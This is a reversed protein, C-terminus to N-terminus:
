KSLSRQYVLHNANQFALDYNSKLFRFLKAEQETNQLYQKGLILIDIRKERAIQELEAIDQDGYGGFLHKQFYYAQIPRRSYFGIALNYVDYALFKEQEPRSRIYEILPVIYETEKSPYYVSSRAEQIFGFQRSGFSDVSHDMSRTLGYGAIAVLTIGIAAFKLLRPHVSRRILRDALYSFPLVVFPTLYLTYYYNARPFQTFSLTMLICSNLLILYSVTEDEQKLRRHRFIFLGAIASILPALEGVFKRVFLIPHALAYADLFGWPSYRLLNGPVFFTERVFQMESGKLLFYLSVPAFGVACGISLYLITRSTEQMRSSRFGLDNRRRWLGWGLWMVFIGPLGLYLLVNFPSLEAKLLYVLLLFVFLALSGLFAWGFSNSWGKYQRTAEIRDTEAQELVLYALIFLLVGLFALIGTNQKLATALGLCVGGGFYWVVNKTTVGKICFLVGILVSLSAMWAPYIHFNMAYACCVAFLSALLAPVVDNKALRNLRFAVVITLAMILGLFTRAAAMSPGFVKFMAGLLIEWGGSYYYSFLVHPSEGLMARYAVYAITGEDHLVNLGVDFQLTLRNVIPIMLVAALGLILLGFIGFGKQRKRIKKTNDAASMMVNEKLTVEIGSVDHSQVVQSDMRM